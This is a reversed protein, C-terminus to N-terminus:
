THKQIEWVTKRECLRVRQPRMTKNKESKNHKTKEQNEKRQNEFRQKRLRTHKTFNGRLTKRVREWVSEWRMIQKPNEIQKEWEPKGVCSEWVFKEADFLNSAPLFGVRKKDKRTSHRRTRQRETSFISHIASGSTPTKNRVPKGFRLAVSFPGSSTELVFFGTRYRCYSGFRWRVPPAGTHTHRPTDAIGVM